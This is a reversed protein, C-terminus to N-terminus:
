QKGYYDFRRQFAASWAAGSLVILWVIYIWLLFIPIAGLSGYIKDYSVIKKTYFTFGLRALGLLGLTFGAATLAPLFNVKRYPVWKYVATFILLSIVRLGTGSPLIGAIPLEKSTTIGITVALAIPGLTILLWYISIRKVLPRTSETKWVRNIANETGFLMAMCTFILGILGSVGLTTTHINGIFNQLGAIAEESAGETLHSIVFPEIESSLKELGGFSKFIAFSVAVAPIISLLTTYALSSAVQPLRAEVVHHTADRFIQKMPTFFTKPTKM